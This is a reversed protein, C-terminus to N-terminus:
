PIMKSLKKVFEKFKSMDIMDSFSLLGRRQKMMDWMGWSLACFKMLSRRMRKEEPSIKQRFDSDLDQTINKITESRSKRWDGFSMGEIAKFTAFPEGRNAKINKDLVVVDYFRKLSYKNDPSNQTQWDLISNLQLGASNTKSANPLNMKAFLNWVDQWEKTLINEVGPRAENILTEDDDSWKLMDIWSHGLSSHLESVDRALTTLIGSKWKNVASSLYYDEDLIKANDRLIKDGYTRALERLNAFELANKIGEWFDETQQTTIVSARPDVDLSLGSERIIRGAFSHITSIWSDSLGEIINQKRNQHTFNKIEESIRKEIRQKMEGAAAETFTLTLINSPSINENELLLRLYRNTLVWTKGTGAGAGVTITKEDANVANRQGEPTQPPLSFNM